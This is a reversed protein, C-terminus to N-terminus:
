TNPEWQDSDKIVEPIIFYDLLELEKDIEFLGVQLFTLLDSNTKFKAHINLSNISAGMAIYSVNCVESLKKLIENKKPVPYKLDINAITNYGYFTPNIVTTFRIANNKILFELRKKVLRQDADIGHALSSISARTDKKLFDTILKDLLETKIEKKM